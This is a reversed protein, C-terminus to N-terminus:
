NIPFVEFVHNFFQQVRKLVEACFVEELFVRKKSIKYGPWQGSAGKLITQETPSRLRHVEGGAHMICNRLIRLFEIRQSWLKDIAAWQEKAHSNPSILHKSLFGRTYHFNSSKRVTKKYYKYRQKPPLKRRKGLQFCVDELQTETYSCLLAIFSYRQYRPFDEALFPNFKRLPLKQEIMEQFKNEVEAQTRKLQDEIGLLYFTLLAFGLNVSQPFEVKQKVIRIKGPKAM